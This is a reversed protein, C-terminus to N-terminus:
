SRHYGPRHHWVAAGPCLHYRWPPHHIIHRWSMTSNSSGGSHLYGPRHDPKPDIGPNATIIAQVSTGFRQAITFITDGVGIIYLTNGPCPPLQTSLPICIVQGIRLNNPDIGPNAAIIANVTTNFRQALAFLTDGAQIAYLAGAPCSVQQLKAEVPVREQKESSVNEAAAKQEPTPKDNKKM